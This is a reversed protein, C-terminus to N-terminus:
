MGHIQFAGREFYFIQFRFHRSQLRFQRPRSAKEVRVHDADDVPVQVRATNRVRVIDKELHHSICPTIQGCPPEVPVFHGRRFPALAVLLTDGLYSVGNARAPGILFFVEAFVAPPNRDDDAARKKVVRGFSPKEKITSIESCFCVRRLPAAFFDSISYRVSTVVADAITQVASGSPLINM